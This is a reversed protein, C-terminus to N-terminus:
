SFQKHNFNFNKLVNELNFDARLPNFIAGEEGGEEDVM